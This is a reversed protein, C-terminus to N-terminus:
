EDNNVKKNSLFLLHTLQRRTANFYLRQKIKLIYLIMGLLLCLNMILIVAACFILSYHLSVLYLFLLLLLSIWTATLIFGLIYVLITLQLVTHFALKAELQALHTFDTWRKLYSTILYKFTLFLNFKKNKM